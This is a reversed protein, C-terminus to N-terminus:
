DKKIENDKRVKQLAELFKGSILIEHKSPDKLDFIREPLELTSQKMYEKSEHLTKSFKFIDVSNNLKTLKTVNYVSSKERSLTYFTNEGLDITEDELTILDFSSKNATTYVRYVAKNGPLTAKDPDSSLKMKPIKNIETLKCVLGLAPQKKCTAIHTGIAYIDIESKNAEMEILREEHLDDSAFISFSLEPAFKNWLKRM